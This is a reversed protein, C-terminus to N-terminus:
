IGYLNIKLGVQYIFILLSAIGAFPILTFRNLKFYQGVLAYIISSIGSTIIFWIFLFPEFCLTAILLLWVDGWGLAKNFFHSMNKKYKFWLYVLTLQLM